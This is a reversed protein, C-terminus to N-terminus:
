FNGLHNMGPAGLSSLSSIKNMDISGRVCILANEKEGGIIMLLERILGDNEDVLLLIKQGESNIRMLEEYKRLPLDKIVEDYFDINRIKGTKEPIHIIYVSNVSAALSKLDEDCPDIKTLLNIAGKSIQVSTVGEMGAYKGFIRDVANQQATLIVPILVLGM